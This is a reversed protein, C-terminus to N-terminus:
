DNELWKTDNIQGEIGMTGFNFCKESSPFNPKTIGRFHSSFSTKGWKVTMRPKPHGWFSIFSLSHSPHPGDWEPRFVDNRPWKRMGSENQSSHSSFSHFSMSMKGNLFTIHNLGRRRRMGCVFIEYKQLKWLCILSPASTYESIHIYGPKVFILFSERAESVFCKRHVPFICFEREM